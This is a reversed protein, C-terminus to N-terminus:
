TIRQIVKYDGDSLEFAEVWPENDRITTVLLKAPVLDHWDSDAGPLHWGGTIAYVEPDNKFVPHESFWVEQYQRVLTADRFNSDYRENREWDNTALWTGIEESGLAFVADIPPLVSVPHACLPIGDRPPWGDVFDLLGRECGNTYLSFYVSNPAKSNPLADARVTMWRRWETISEDDPDSEFWMAVPEDTGSPKLFNCDRQLKRGEAILRDFTM